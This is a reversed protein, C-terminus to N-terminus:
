TILLREQAVGEGASVGRAEVPLGCSPLLLFRWNMYCTNLQEKLEQHV